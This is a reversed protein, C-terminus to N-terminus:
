GRQQTDDCLSQYATVAFMAKLFFRHIFRQALFQSNPFIFNEVAAGSALLSAAAKDLKAASRGALWLADGQAARRQATALGMGSAGGIILTTETNM